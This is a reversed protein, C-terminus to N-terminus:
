AQLGDLRDIDLWALRSISRGSLVLRLSDEVWVLMVIIHAEELDLIYVFHESGDLLLVALHM